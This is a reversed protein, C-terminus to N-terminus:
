LVGLIQPKTSTSASKSEGQLEQTFLTSGTLHGTYTFNTKRRMPMSCALSGLSSRQPPPSPICGTPYKTPLPSPHPLVMSKLLPQCSPIPVSIWVPINYIVM